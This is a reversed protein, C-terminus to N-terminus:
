DEIASRFGKYIEAAACIGALVWLVVALWHLFGGVPGNQWVYNAGSTLLADPVLILLLPLSASQLAKGYDGSSVADMFAVLPGDSEKTAQPSPKLLRRLIKEPESDWAEIHEVIRGTSPDGAYTTSGATASAAAPHYPRMCLSFVLTGFM